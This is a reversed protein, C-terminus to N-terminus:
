IAPKRNSEKEKKRREKKEFKDKSREMSQRLRGYLVVSNAGWCPKSNAKHCSIMRNSFEPNDNGVPASEAVDVDMQSATARRKRYWEYKQVYKM